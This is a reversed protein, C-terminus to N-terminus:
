YKLGPISQDAAAEIERIADTLNSLRWHCRRSAEARFVRSSIKSKMSKPMGRQQTSFTQTPIFIEMHTERFGRLSLSKTTYEKVLDIAKQSFECGNDRSRSYGLVKLKKAELKTNPGLKFSNYDVVVMISSTTRSPVLQNPKPAHHVAYSPTYRTSEKLWLGKM